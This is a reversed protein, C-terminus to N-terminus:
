LQIGAVGSASTMTMRKESLTSVSYAEETTLHPHGITQDDDEVEGDAMMEGMRTEQDERVEARRAGVPHAAELHDEGLPAEALIVVTTPVTVVMAAERPSEGTEEATVKEVPEEAPRLIEFVTESIDAM